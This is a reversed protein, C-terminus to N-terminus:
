QEEKNECWSTKGLLCAIELVHTERLPIRQNRIRQRLHLQLESLIELIRAPLRKNKVANSPGLLM